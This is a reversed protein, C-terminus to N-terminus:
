LFVVWSMVEVTMAPPARVGIKRAKVVPGEGVSRAREDVGEANTEMVTREVMWGNSAAIQSIVLVLLAGIIFLTMPHPLRNGVREIRDLWRTKPPPSEENTPEASM